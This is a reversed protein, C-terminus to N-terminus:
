GCREVHSSPILASSVPRFRHLYHVNSKCNGGYWGCTEDPAIFITVPGDRRVLEKDYKVENHPLTAISTIEPNYANLAAGSAILLLHLIWVPVRPRSM